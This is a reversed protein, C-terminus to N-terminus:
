YRKLEISYNKALNKFFLKVGYFELNKCYNYRTNYHIKIINKIYKRIDINLYGPICQELLQNLKSSNQYSSKFLDDIYNEIQYKSSFELSEGKLKVVITEYANIEEKYKETLLEFLESSKKSYSESSIYNEVVLIIFILTIFSDSLNMLFGTVILIIWPLIIYVFSIILLLTNVVFNQTFDSIFCGLFKALEDYYLYYM